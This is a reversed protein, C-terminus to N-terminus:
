ENYENSLLQAYMANTCWLVVVIQSCPAVDFAYKALTGLISPWLCKERADKCCQQLGM